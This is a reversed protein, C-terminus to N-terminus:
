KNHEASHMYDNYWAQNDDRVHTLFEPLSQAVLIQRNAVVRGQSDLSWVICDQQDRYFSGTVPDIEFYCGTPSNWDSQLADLRADIDGLTLFSSFLTDIAYKQYEYLRYTSSGRTGFGWWGWKEVNSRDEM